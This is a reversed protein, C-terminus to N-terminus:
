SQEHPKKRLYFCIRQLDELLMHLPAALLVARRCSAGADALHSEHGAAIRRLASLDAQATGAMCDAVSDLALAVAQAVECAPSGDQRAPAALLMRRLVAVDQFVRQMLGAIRSYHRPERLAQARRLLPAERDAGRALMTLRGLAHRASAAAQEAESDTTKVKGDAQRLRLAMARLLSACGAHLRRPADYTSSLLAVALAVGVGIAIQSVRLVATQLASHGPLQSASLIILAAVAASRLAPTAASAFALAAVIALTTLLVNAGIHEVYVGLLGCLVGAMTGCVREWGADLAGGASPRMVILVSMVAWFHEPLGALASAFYAMVVATALQWGHQRNASMRPRWSRAQRAWFALRM